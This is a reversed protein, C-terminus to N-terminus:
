EKDHWQRPLQEPPVELPLRQDSPRGVNYSLVQLLRRITDTQQALKEDQRVLQQLIEEQRRYLLFLGDHMNRYLLYGSVCGVTLLLIPILDRVTLGIAKSGLKLELREGNGGTVTGRVEEAM